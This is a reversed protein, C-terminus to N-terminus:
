QKKPWSIHSYSPKPNLSIKMVLGGEDDTDFRMSPSITIKPPPIELPVSVAQSKSLRFCKRGCSIIQGDLDNHKPIQYKKM